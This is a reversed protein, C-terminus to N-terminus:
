ELMEKLRQNPKEDAHAGFECSVCGYYLPRRDAVDEQMSMLEYRLTSEWLYLDTGPLQKVGLLARMLEDMWDTLQFTGEDGAEHFEGNSMDGPDYTCFVFGISLTKAMEGPRKIGSYRDFRQELVQKGDSPMLLILISPAVSTPTEGYQPYLNLFVRPEVYSFEEDTKGPTKMARGECVAKYVWEKLAALRERTSNM